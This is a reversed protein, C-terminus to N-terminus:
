MLLEVALACRPVVDEACCMLGSPIKLCFFTRLLHSVKGFEDPHTCQSFMFILIMWKPNKFTKVTKANKLAVKANKLALKPEQPPKKPTKPALKYQFTTESNQNLDGFHWNRYAWFPFFLRM